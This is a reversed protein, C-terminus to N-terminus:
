TKKKISSFNLSSMPHMSQKCSPPPQTSETDFRLVISWLWGVSSRASCQPYIYEGSPSCQVRKSGWRLSPHRQWLPHTKPFSGFPRQGGLWKRFDHPSNKGFLGQKFGLIILCIKSIDQGYRPCIKPMGQVYQQCIKPMVRTYRVLIIQAYRTCVKAM